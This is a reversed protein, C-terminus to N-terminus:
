KQIWPVQLSIVTVGGASSRTSLRSKLGAATEEMFVISSSFALDDEECCRFGVEFLYQDNQERIEFNITEGACGYQESFRIASELMEKVLEAVAMGAEFSQELGTSVVHNIEIGRKAAMLNCNLIVAAIEPCGLRTIVGDRNLEDAVQNIYERARDYKKLQLLGSIVQLHNMFDHRQVRLVEVLNVM